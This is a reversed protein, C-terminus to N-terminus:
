LRVAVAVSSPPAAVVETAITIVTASSGGGGGPGGPGGRGGGVYYIVDFLQLGALLLKLWFPTTETLM